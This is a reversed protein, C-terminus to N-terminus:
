STLCDCTLPTRCECCGSEAAACLLVGLFEALPNTLLTGSQKAKQPGSIVVDSKKFWQNRPTSLDGSHLMWPKGFGFGPWRKLGERKMGEGPRLQMRHMLWGLSNETGRFSGETNGTESMWSSAEKGPSPGLTAADTSLQFALTPYPSTPVLPPSCEQEAPVLFTLPQPFFPCAPVAPSTSTASSAPFSPQPQTLFLRWHWDGRGCRLFLGLAAPCLSERGQVGFVSLRDVSPLPISVEAFRWPFPSLLISLTTFIPFNSCVNSQLSPKNYTSFVWLFFFSKIIFLKYTNYDAAEASCIWATNESIIIFCYMCKHVVTKLFILVESNKICIFHLTKM